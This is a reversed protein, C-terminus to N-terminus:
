SLPGTGTFQVSLNSNQRNAAQVSMDTIYAEGTKKDAGVIGSLFRRSLRGFDKYKQACIHKRDNEDLTPYKEKLWKAVRTKDEACSAREIILEADEETLMGSSLLRRFDIQPALNSKIEEDIGSVLGEENKPIVGESELFELLKKRTIKKKNMFIMM